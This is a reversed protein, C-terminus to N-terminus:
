GMGPCREMVVQEEGADGLATGLLCTYLVELTQLSHIQSYVASTSSSVLVSVTFCLCLWLGWNWRIKQTSKKKSISKVITQGYWAAHPIKTRWGPLPSASTCLRLWQVVLSTGLSFKQEREKNPKDPSSTLM